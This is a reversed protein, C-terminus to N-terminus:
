SLDIRELFVVEAQEAMVKDNIPFQGLDVNPHNFLQVRLCRNKFDVNIESQREVTIPKLDGGLLEEVLCHNLYSYVCKIQGSNDIKLQM